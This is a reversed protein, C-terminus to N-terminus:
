QAMKKINKNNGDVNVTGDIMLKKAEELDYKTGCHQCVYMGNQKIFDKSGCLECVIAKM